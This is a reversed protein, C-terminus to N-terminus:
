SEPQDEPKAAAKAAKLEAELTQVRAELKATAEKVRKDSQEQLERNEQTLERQAKKAQAHSTTSVLLTAATGIIVAVVIVLILPWHFRAGFFNVAVTQSNLLAFVILLLALVLGVILRQQNKM